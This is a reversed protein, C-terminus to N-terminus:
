TLIKDIGYTMSCLRNKNQAPLPVGLVLGAVKWHIPVEREERLIRLYELVTKRGVLKPSHVM